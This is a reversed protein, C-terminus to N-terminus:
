GGDPAGGSGGFVGSSSECGDGGLNPTGGGRWAGILRGGGAGLLPGGGLRGVLTCYGPGGGGGLGATSGGAGGARPKYLKTTCRNHQITALRRRSYLYAGAAAGVVLM